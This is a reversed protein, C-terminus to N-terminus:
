EKAVQLTSIVQRVGDTELAVLMAKGVLEASGVKGSLTVIGNTTSVSIALASLDGDVALKAKIAATLRADAASDAIKEGFESAKRRVVRGKEALEKRIKDSQLELAELKADVLKKVESMSQEKTGAFMGAQRQQLFWLGGGGIIIGLLVGIIFTRM